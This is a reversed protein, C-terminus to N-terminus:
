KKLITNVVTMTNHKFSMADLPLVAAKTRKIQYRIIQQTFQVPADPSAFQPNRKRNLAASNPDTRMRPYSVLANGFHVRLCM